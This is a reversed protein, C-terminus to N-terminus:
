LEEQRVRPGLVALTDVRLEALSDSGTSVERGGSERERERNYITPRM